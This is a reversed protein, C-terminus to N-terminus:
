LEAGVFVARALGTLVIVPGTINVTVPVYEAVPHLLEFVTATLTNTGVMVIVPLGLVQKPPITFRM